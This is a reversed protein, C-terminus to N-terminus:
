KTKNYDHVYQGLHICNFILAGPWTIILLIPVWWWQSPPVKNKPIDAEVNLRIEYISCIIGILIYIQIWGPWDLDTLTITAPDM